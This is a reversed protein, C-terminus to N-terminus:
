LETIPEINFVPIPPPPNDAIAADVAADYSEDLYRKPEQDSWPGHAVQVTTVDVEVHNGEFDTRPTSMAESWIRVDCLRALNEYRSADLAVRSLDPAFVGLIEAATASRFSGNWWEEYGAASEPLGAADLQEPTMDRTDIIEGEFVVVESNNDAFIEPLDDGSQACLEGKHDRFYIMCEGHADCVYLTPTSAIATDSM